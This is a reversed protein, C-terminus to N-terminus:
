ALDNRIRQKLRSIRTSVNTETLGLIDGIEANTHEDLYLLM